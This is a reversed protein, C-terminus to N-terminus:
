RHPNAAPKKTKDNPAPANAERADRDSAQSEPISGVQSNSCGVLGFPVVALLVLAGVVRVSPAAKM